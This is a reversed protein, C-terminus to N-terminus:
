VLCAVYTYFALLYVFHIARVCVHVGSVIKIFQCLLIVHIPMPCWSVGEVQAVSITCIFIFLSLSVQFCIFDPSHLLVLDGIAKM